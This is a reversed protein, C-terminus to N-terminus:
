AVLLEIRRDDNSRGLLMGFDLVGILTNDSHIFGRLPADTLMGPLAKLSGRCIGEVNRVRLAFVEGDPGDPRVRVYTAEATPIPAGFLLDGLDLLTVTGGHHRDILREGHLALATEDRQEIHEVLRLPVGLVADDAHEGVRLMLYETVNAVDCRFTMSSGVGSEQSLRLRLDRIPWARWDPRYEVTGDADDALTLDVRDGDRRLSVRLTVHAPCGDAMRQEATRNLSTAALAQMWEGCAALLGNAVASPITLALDPSEQSIAVRVRARGLHRILMGELAHMFDTVDIRLAGGVKEIVAGIARSMEGRLRGPDTQRNMQHQAELLSEVADRGGASARVMLDFLRDTREIAGRAAAAPDAAIKQVLFVAEADLHAEITDLVHSLAAGHAMLRPDATGQLISQYQMQLNCRMWEFRMELWIWPLMTHAEATDDDFCVDRLSQAVAQLRAQMTAVLAEGDAEDIGGLDAIMSRMRDQFASTELLALLSHIPDTQQSMM